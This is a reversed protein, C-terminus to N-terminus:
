SSTKLKDAVTRQFTQLCREIAVLHSYTDLASKSVDLETDQEKTSIKTGLGVSYKPINKLQYLKALERIKSLLDRLDFELKMFKTPSVAKTNGTVAKSAVKNSKELIAEEHMRHGETLQMCQIDDIHNQLIDLTTVLHKGCTKKIPQFHDKLKREAKFDRRLNKVYLLLKRTNGNVNTLSKWVNGERPIRNDIVADSFMFCQCFIISLVGILGEM